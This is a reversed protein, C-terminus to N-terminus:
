ESIPAGTDLGVAPPADAPLSRVTRASLTVAPCFLLVHAQFASAPCSFSDRRTQKMIGIQVSVHRGNQQEHESGLSGYMEAWLAITYPLRLGLHAQWLVQM